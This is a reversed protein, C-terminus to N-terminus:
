SKLREIGLRAQEWWRKVRIRRVILASACVSVLSIAWAVLPRAQESCPLVAPDVSACGDLEAPVVACTPAREGGNTGLAHMTEDGAESAGAFPSAYASARVLPRSDYDDHGEHTQDRVAPEDDTFDLSARSDIRTHEFADDLGAVFRVWARPAPSCSIPLDGADLRESPQALAGQSDSSITWLTAILALSSGPLPVLEAVEQVNDYSMETQADPGSLLNSLYGELAAASLPPVPFAFIDDFSFDHYIRVTTSQYVGDELGGTAVYSMWGASTSDHSTDMQISLNSASDAPSSVVIGSESQQMPTSLADYALGSPSFRGAFDFEHDFDRAIFRVFDAGFLEGHGVLAGLWPPPSMPGASGGEASGSFLNNADRLLGSGNGGEANASVFANVDHLLGSGSGGQASASFLNSVDRLLGSPNGSEVIGSVLDSVNHPPGSRDIRAAILSKLESAEPIASLRALIVSAHAEFDISPLKVPLPPSPAAAFLTAPM